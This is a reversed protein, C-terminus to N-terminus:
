KDRESEIMEFIYGLQAALTAAEWNTNHHIHSEGRVPHAHLVVGTHCSCAYILHSHRPIEITTQHSLPFSQVSVARGKWDFCLPAKVLIHLHHWSCGECFSRAIPATWQLVLPHQQLKETPTASFTHNECSSYMCIVLSSCTTPNLDRHYKLKNISKSAIM